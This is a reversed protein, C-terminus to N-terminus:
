KLTNLESSFASQQNKIINYEIEQGYHITKQQATIETHTRLSESVQQYIGAALVVCEMLHTQFLSLQTM